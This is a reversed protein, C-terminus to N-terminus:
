INAAILIAGIFLLNIILVSCVADGMLPAIDSSYKAHSVKSCHAITPALTLSYLAIAVLSADTIALYFAFLLWASGCLVFHYLKAKRLGMRVPLTYKGSNKDNEIDRMNNINLVVTALIGSALAPLTILWHLKETHLQYSGMVGVLGFFLLVAIDGLGAYGYPNKGVTYVIAAVIAAIGLVSFFLLQELSNLAYLLLTLGFAAAMIVTFIIAKKMAQHSIVGSQIARTPGIRQENDTGKLGDGYDNALNSLIQLLSATLIALAFTVWSFEGYQYALTSGLVISIMALPLTQPRTANLWPSLSSFFM